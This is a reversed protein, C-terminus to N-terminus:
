ARMARVTAEAYRHAQPWGSARQGAVNLRRISRQQFFRVIQAAADSRATQAVDIVFVPKRNLNCM